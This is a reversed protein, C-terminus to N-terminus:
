SVVLDKRDSIMLVYDTILDQTSSTSSFVLSFAEAVGLSFVRALAISASGGFSSGDAAGYFTGDAAGFTGSSVPEFANQTKLTENLIFDTALSFDVTGAGRFRVQRLRKRYYPTPFRRRRYFTPSQWPGRWRWTFPTGNDVTVGPVFCQDVVASTDKTSYLGPTTVSPHWVAFQGSGFTHLWWSQLTSDFDLTTDNVGPTGGTDVSLYYHSGFYTGAAATRIQIGDITPQIVDSISTIKSGNTLYVGRDESLFYTGEPAEAISRHSICGISDSLRRADGTNFDTILYSKRAKTVFIYPGVHGLGTIPAGDNEDFIAVNAAPWTVPGNNGPILDSFFVRAPNAAVGAVWIRNGALVMYKGNPVTGTTATWNATSGTGSWQQPTDTGNMGYLPGQGGTVQSQVWEWNLGSTVGTKIATVVGGTTISYLSTVGAGILFPSATAELPFLSTLQVAPTAFTVLGDRKVIAGATTGQINQLDRAQEDTLLNPADRTNLGGHFDTYDFPLSTM